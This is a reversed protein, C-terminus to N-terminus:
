YFLFFFTLGPITATGKIGANPLCLYTSRQLNLTAQNTNNLELFALAASHSKTEIFGFLLLPYLLFFERIQLYEQSILGNFCVM